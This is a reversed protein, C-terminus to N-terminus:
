LAPAFFSEEAEAEVVEDVEESPLDELPSLLDVGAFDSAFGLGDLAYALPKALSLHLLM